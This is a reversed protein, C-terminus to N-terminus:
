TNLLHALLAMFIVMLVFMGIGILVDKNNHKFENM